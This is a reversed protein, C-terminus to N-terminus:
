VSSGVVLGSLLVVALGTGGVALLLHAWLPWGRTAPFIRLVAATATAAAWGPVALRLAVEGNLLVEDRASACALPSCDPSAEASALLAGAALAATPALLLLVTLAAYPSRRRPRAGEGPAGRPVPGGSAPSGPALREALLVAAATPAGFLLGFLGGQGTQALLHWLTQAAGGASGGTLLGAAAGTLAAAAFATVPVSWAGVPSGTRAGPRLLPHLAAVAVAVLAALDPWPTTIRGPLPFGWDAATATLPGTRTDWDSFLGATLAVAVAGAAATWPFARAAASANRM